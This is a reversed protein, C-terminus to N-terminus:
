ARSVSLFHVKWVSLLQLNHRCRSPVAGWICSKRCGDRQKGKWSSKAFIDSMNKPFWLNDFNREIYLSMKYQIYRYKLMQHFMEAKHHHGGNKHRVQLFYFPSNMERNIECCLSGTCLYSLNPSAVFLWQKQPFAMLIIYQSNMNTARIIRWTIRMRRIIYDTAQGPGVYKKVNDWLLYSNRFFLSEMSFTHKFKEVSKTQFM